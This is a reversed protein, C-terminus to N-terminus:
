SETLAPGLARHESLADGSISEPQGFGSVGFGSVGFGSVGFGPLLM